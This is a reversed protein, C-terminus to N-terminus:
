LQEFNIMRSREDEPIATPRKDQYNVAICTTKGTSCLQEGQASNKVIKYELEFSSRGIRSTRVYIGIQDNLQIPKIFDLEAHALVIGTKQWDWKIIERWYKARANELYTFYTANNVHGMMDYDSFRTEIATKFNFRDSSNRLDSEKDNSKPKKRWLTKFIM